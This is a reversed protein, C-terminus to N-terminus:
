KLTEECAARVAKIRNLWGGLFKAQTPDNSVIKRYFFERQALVDRVVRPTLGNQNDMTVAGLTDSGILGDDDVGLGRQLFLVAQRVGSNVAADFICLDLPAPLNDGRIPKWYNQRYIDAAEDLTIGAVSAQPLHRVRSRYNDYTAQTVGYNTLGGHDAKDNSLGGEVGLVFKLCEDFRSM